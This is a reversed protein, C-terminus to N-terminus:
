SLFSFVHLWGDGFVAANSTLAERGQERAKPVERRPRLQAWPALWMTSLLVRCRSNESQVMRM